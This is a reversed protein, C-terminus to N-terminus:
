VRGPLQFSSTSKSETADWILVSEPRVNKHVFDFAHVYNVSKALQQAIGIRYSLSVKIPRLLAERLCRVTTSNDPTRFVMDFSEIERTSPRMIRVVGKCRLLGFRLPDAETLRRALNRVDKTMTDMNKSQACHISNIILWSTDARGQRRALIVNAYPIEVTDLEQPPLFISVHRCPQSRLADRVGGATLIPNQDAILLPMANTSKHLPEPEFTQSKTDQISTESLRAATTEQAHQYLANDIMPSAIRLILYWLPDFRGRWAEMDRIVEDLASKVLVYKGKRVRAVFDLLGPRSDNSVGQVGQLKTAVLSLKAALIGLADDLIRRHENMWLTTSASSSYSRIAREHGPM